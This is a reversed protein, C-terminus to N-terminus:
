IEGDKLIKAPQINTVLTAHASGDLLKYRLQMEAVLCAKLALTEQQTLTWELARCEETSIVEADELSKEIVTNGFQNITLDAVTIDHPDVVKFTYTITPTTGRPIKMSEQCDM